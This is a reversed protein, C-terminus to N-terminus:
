DNQLFMILGVFGIYWSAGGTVASICTLGVRLYDDSSFLAILQPTIAFSKDKIVSITLLCFLRGVMKMIVSFIAGFGTAYVGHLFM